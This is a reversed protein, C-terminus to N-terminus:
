LYDREELEKLLRARDLRKLGAGRLGPLIEEGVDGDKLTGFMDLRITRNRGTMWKFLRDRVQYHDTYLFYLNAASHSRLVEKMEDRTLYPRVNAPRRMWQYGRMVVPPGEVRRIIPISRACLDSGGHVYLEANFAFVVDRPGTNRQLWAIAERINSRDYYFNAASAAVNIALFVVVLPVARAAPVAALRRSAGLVVLGAALYFFRGYFVFNHNMFLGTLLGSLVGTALLWSHFDLRPPADSRPPKWLWVLLLVNLVVGFRVLGLLNDWYIAHVRQVGVLRNAVLDMLRATVAGTSLVAYVAVALALYRLAVPMVDLTRRAAQAIAAVRGHGHLWLCAVALVFTALILPHWGRLTPYLIAAAAAAFWLVAPGTRGGRWARLGEWLAILSVLLLTLAPAYVRVYLAKELVLSQGFFLVTAFAVQRAPAKERWVAYIVYVGWTALTFVLPVLRAATLSEGFTQYARATLWSVEYGRWNEIPTLEACRDFVALRPRGTLLIGKAVAMHGIEDSWATLHGALFAWTGLFGALVVLIVVVPLAFAALGHRSM